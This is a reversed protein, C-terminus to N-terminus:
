PKVKEESSERKFEWSVQGNDIKVIVPCEMHTRLIDTVARLSLYPMGGISYQSGHTLATMIQAFERKDIM